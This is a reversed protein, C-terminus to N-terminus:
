GRFDRFQRYIASDPLVTSKQLKAPKSLKVFYLGIEVILVVQYLLPQLEFAFLKWNSYSIIETSITLFKTYQFAKKLFCKYPFRLLKAKSKCKREMRFFIKPLNSIIWCFRETEFDNKLFLLFNQLIKSFSQFIMNFNM